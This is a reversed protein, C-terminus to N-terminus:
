QKYAPTMSWKTSRYVLMVDIHCIMGELGELIMYPMPMNMIYPMPMTLVWLSCHRQHGCHDSRATDRRDANWLRLLRCSLLDRYHVPVTWNIRRWTLNQSLIESVRINYKEESPLPCLIEQRTVYKNMDEDTINTSILVDDSEEGLWYFPTNVQRSEDEKILGQCSASNNLASEM